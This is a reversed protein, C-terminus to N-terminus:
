VCEKQITEVENKHPFTNHLYTNYPSWRTQYGSYKIINDIYFPNRFPTILSASALPTSPQYTFHHIPASSVYSIWTELQSSHAHKALRRYHLLTTGIQSVLFLPTSSKTCTTLCLPVTTTPFAIQVHTMTFMHKIWLTPWTSLCASSPPVLVYLSDKIGLEELRCMENGSIETILWSLCQKKQLRIKHIHIVNNELTPTIWHACLTVTLNVQRRPRLRPLYLFNRFNENKTWRPTAM